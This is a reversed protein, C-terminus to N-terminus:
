PYQMNIFPSVFSVWSLVWEASTIPHIAQRLESVNLNWNWPISYINLEDGMPCFPCWNPLCCNWIYNEFSFSLIGIRIESFNTGLSRISFLGANTWTIAQHWLPWLGNGSGTHGLESICIHLVLPLHTLVAISEKSPFYGVIYDTHSFYQQTCCRIM